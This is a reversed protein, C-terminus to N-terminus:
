ESDGIPHHNRLHPDFLPWMQYHLVRTTLM